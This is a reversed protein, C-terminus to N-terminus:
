PHSRLPGKLDAVAKKALPENVFSLLMTGPEKQQVESLGTVLTTIQQHLIRPALIAPISSLRVQCRPLTSPPSFLPTASTSSTASLLPRTPDPAPADSPRPAMAGTPVPSPPRPPLPGLSTFAGPHLPKPLYTGVWAAVHPLEVALLAQADVAKEKAGSQWDEILKVAWEEGSKKKLRKYSGTQSPDKDELCLLLLELVLKRTPSFDDSAAATLATLGNWSHKTDVLMGVSGVEEARQLLHVVCLVDLEGASVVLRDKLECPDM